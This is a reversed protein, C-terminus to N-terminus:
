LLCNSVRSEYFCLLAEFQDGNLISWEYYVM